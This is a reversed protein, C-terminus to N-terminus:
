ENGHEHEGKKWFLEDAKIFSYLFEVADPKLATVHKSLAQAKLNVTLNETLMEDPVAFSIRNEWGLGCSKDFSPPCTLEEMANRRLPWNEDGAKSHVIGSYLNPQYGEKKLEKLIDEIWLFLGSHDGHTDEESTTFINDPRYKEIVGKIDGYCNGRTYLAHEGYEMFHFDPKRLLGYTCDSCPSPHVKDPIDEHYLRYLFSDAEPMGTDPYGLIVLHEESLGLVKMGSITEELRLQGITKDTSGYDGNTVMVVMVNLHNRVANAIIGACMLVEDDQHPVMIMISGFDQDIVQKKM